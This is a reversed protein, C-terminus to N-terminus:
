RDAIIPMDWCRAAGLVVPELTLAGHFIDGGLLGFHRELDLPRCRGAPRGRQKAFGPAYRDVTAIM